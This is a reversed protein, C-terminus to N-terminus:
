KLSAGLLDRAVVHRQVENPGEGVRRIRLERYWREFPLDKTMGYGGFIQMSRDVVRGAAESAVLKALGAEMRFPEGRDAKAAAALTMLTAQRLDIENDVLMWQVAQRTALLAGFTERQKAYEIAMEHAKYAPALCQAAYPIRQRSLRENAIAFGKNLEGLINTAPVRMDTFSLETAYHSSRLTHVIRRVHFGPTKTEVIFCTVGGRGKEPDTRAFVLGFDAKDAGSIFVKSGNIVYDNGDRVARTRIARAPDSGGSPETLGFF